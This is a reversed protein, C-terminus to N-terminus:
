TFVRSNREDWLYYCTAAISARMWGNKWHRTHRRDSSWLLETQADSSRGSIKLWSQIGEWIQKSFACNFFLHAHTENDQKCLICRNIIHLGKGALNDLTALKQQLALSTIIRHSPIIFQHHLATTWHLKPLFNRFWSYAQGISFKGSHLWSSILSIATTISGSKALIEDRIILLSRFSETYHSKSQLTWISDNNLYYAQM